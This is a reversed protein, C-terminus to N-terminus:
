EMKELVAQVRNSLSEKRLGSSFTRWALQLVNWPEEESTPQNRNQEGDHHDRVAERIHLDLSRSPYDMISLTEMMM